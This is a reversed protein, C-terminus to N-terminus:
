ATRRRSRFSSALLWVGAVVLLLPILPALGVILGVLVFLGLLFLLAAKVMFLIIGAGPGAMVGLLRFPLMVIQGVIFLVLGLVVGLIVFPIALLAFLAMLFISVMVTILGV